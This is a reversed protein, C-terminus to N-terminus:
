ADWRATNTLLTFGDKGTNAAIDQATTDSVSNNVETLSARLVPKPYKDAASHAPQKYHAFGSVELGGGLGATGRTYLAEYSFEESTNTLHWAGDLSDIDHLDHPIDVDHRFYGAWRMDGWFAEQFGVINGGDATGGSADKACNHYRVTPPATTWADQGFINGEFITTPIYRHSADSAHRYDQNVFATSATHITSFAEHLGTGDGFDSIFDSTGGQLSASDTRTLAPFQFVGSPVNHFTSSEAAQYKLDWNSLSGQLMSLWVHHPQPFIPNFCTRVFNDDNDYVVKSDIIEFDKFEASSVGELTFSGSPTTSRDITLLTGVGGTLNTSIVQPAYTTGLDDQSSVVGYAHSPTVRIYARAFFPDALFDGGVGGVTIGGTSSEFLFVNGDDTRVRISGKFIFTLLYAETNMTQAPEVTGSLSLFGNLSPSVGGQGPGPTTDVWDSVSDLSITTLCEQSAECCRCGVKNKVKM